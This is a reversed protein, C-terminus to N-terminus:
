CLCNRGANRGDRRDTEKVCDMAVSNLVHWQNSATPHIVVMEGSLPYVGTLATINVQHTVLVLPQTLDQQVLWARLQQMQTEKKAFDEFFSNLAPLPAVPGLALREATELCRCWQSSYVRAADIGYSRFRDGMAVAQQRGQDSLNRQTACKGIEFHPPDGFGPALAHRILAVHNGSRLAQWVVRDDGLAARPALMGFISLAMVILLLGRSALGHQHHRVSPNM